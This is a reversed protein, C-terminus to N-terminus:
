YWTSQLFCPIQAAVHMRMDGVSELQKLGDQEKDGTEEFVSQGDLISEDEVKVGSEQDTVEDALSEGGNAWEGSAGSWLGPWVGATSALPDKHM